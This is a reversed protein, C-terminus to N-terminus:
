AVRLSRQCSASAAAHWQLTPQVNGIMYTKRPSTYSAPGSGPSVEVAAGALLELGKAVLGVGKAM